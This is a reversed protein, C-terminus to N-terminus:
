PVVGKFLCFRLSLTMFLLLHVTDPSCHCTFVSLHITFSFKEEKQSLITPFGRYLDALPRCNLSLAMNNTDKPTLLFWYASDKLQRWILVLRPFRWFCWIPPFCAKLLPLHKPWQASWVFLLILIKRWIRPIKFYNQIKLLMNKLSMSTNHSKHLSSLYPFTVITWVTTVKPTFEKILPLLIPHIVMMLIGHLMIMVRMSM